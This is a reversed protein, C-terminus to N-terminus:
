CTMLIDRNIQFLQQILGFLNHCKGPANFDFYTGKEAM